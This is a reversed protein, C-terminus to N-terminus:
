AGEKALLFTETDVDLKGHFIYGEWRNCERYAKGNNASVNLLLFVTVIAATPEPKTALELTCPTGSTLQLM